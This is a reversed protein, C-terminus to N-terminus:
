AADLMITFFAGTEDHDIRATGTWGAFDNTGTGPVSYGFRTGADSELGGHQVTVSGSRGDDMTGTIREVAVYGRQGEIDGNSMFFVESSGTIGATFTKHFVLGAAWGPEIGDLPTEEYGAIGFRAIIPQTSTM